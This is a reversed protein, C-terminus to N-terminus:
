ATESGGEYKAGVSSVPSETSLAPNLVTDTGPDPKSRNGPKM